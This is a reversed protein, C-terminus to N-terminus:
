ALHALAIFPQNYWQSEMYLERSYHMRNLMSVGVFSMDLELPFIMIPETALLATLLVKRAETLDQLSLTDM